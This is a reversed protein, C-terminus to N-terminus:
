LIESISRLIWRPHVAFVHMFDPKFCIVDNEQRQETFRTCTNFNFINENRLLLKSTGKFNFMM